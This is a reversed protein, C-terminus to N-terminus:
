PRLLFRQGAFSLIVGGNVIEEVKLKGEVLEGEAYRRQNILVMREAPDAYYALLDIHVSPLASRFEVPMEDLLPVSNERRDPVATTSAVVNTPKPQVGVPRRDSANSLVDDAERAAVDAVAPDFAPSRLVDASQPPSPDRGTKSPEGTAEMKAFSLLSPNEHAVGPVASRNSESRDWAAFPQAPGPAKGRGAPGKSVPRSAQGGAIASADVKQAIPPGDTSRWAPGALRAGNAALQRSDADTELSPDYLLLGLLGANLLLGIAAAPLWLSDRQASTSQQNSGLAPSPFAARRRENEVRKLAQLIYSM